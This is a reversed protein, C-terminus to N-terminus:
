RLLRGAGVGWGGPESNGAHMGFALEFSRAQTRVRPGPPARREPEPQAVMHLRGLFARRQQCTRASVGLLHELVCGGSQRSVILRCAQRLACLAAPRAPLSM